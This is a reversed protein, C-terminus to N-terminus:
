DGLVEDLDIVEVKEDAADLEIEGTEGMVRDFGGYASVRNRGARKSEYLAHDAAALLEPATRGDEPFTAVGGSISIRGLPQAEGFRFAHSEIALRIREAGRIAQEKGAGPMLLLFEEGGFRGLIERERTIGRLVDSLSRLLDDGAPHGNHDNYHKFHDIDFLFVSLREGLGTQSIGRDLSEQVYTKNLLGTLGDREALRKQQAFARISRISQATVVGVARAFDPASPVSRSTAGVLIVATVSQAPAVPICFSFDPVPDSFYTSRTLRAESAVDAPTTILQKSATWPVIGEEPGLTRRLEFPAAGRVHTAVFRKGWRMFYTAHQPAFLHEVLDLAKEPVKRDDKAEMLEQLLWPIGGVTQHLVGVTQELRAREDREEQLLRATEAEKAIAKRYRQDLAAVEARAHRYYAWLALLSLACASAGIWDLQTM